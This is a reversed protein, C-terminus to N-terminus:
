NFPLVIISPNFEYLYRRQPYANEQKSLYNTLKTTSNLIDNPIRHGSHISNELRITIASEMFSNVIDDIQYYIQSISSRRYKTRCQYPHCQACSKPYQTAFQIAAEEITRVTSKKAQQYFDIMCVPLLHYLEKQFIEKIIKLYYIRSLKM